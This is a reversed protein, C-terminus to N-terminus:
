FSIRKKEERMNKFGSGGGLFFFLFLFLFVVELPCKRPCKQCFFINRIIALSSLLLSKDFQLVLRKTKPFSIIFM